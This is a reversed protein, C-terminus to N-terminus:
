KGPLLTATEFTGFPGGDFAYAHLFGIRDGLDFTVRERMPQDNMRFTGDSEFTLRTDELHGLFFTSTPEDDLGVARWADINGDWGMSFRIHLKMADKGAGIVEHIDCDIWNSEITPSCHMSLTTPLEPSDPGMAGASVTGNAHHDGLFPRLAANADAAFASTLALIFM